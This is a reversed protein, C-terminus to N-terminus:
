DRPGFLARDLSFRGPGGLMLVLAIGLFLLPLSYGPGGTLDVFPAHFDMKVMWAATAMTSAIGLSALPTLLGLIWALGGGFESLAALGQLFAPTHSAPGMWSFPHQVKMWGYHLFAAGAILRLLLLAADPAAGKSPVTFYPKFTM